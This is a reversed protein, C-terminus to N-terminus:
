SYRTGKGQRHLEVVMDEKEKRTLVMSDNIFICFLFISFIRWKLISELQRRSDETGSYDVTMKDTVSFAM